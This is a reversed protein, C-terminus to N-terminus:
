ISTNSTLAPKSIAYVGDRKSLVEKVFKGIEWFAQRADPIVDAGAHFVHLAHDWLQFRLPVGAQICRAAVEYADALLVETSGVQILTPPLGSFDHNVPSWAPDLKGNVQMGWTVPLALVGASLAPDIKNNPHQLRATSDYNAFPAITVLAAPMPLSRERIALATSLVLGGGASDGALVVRDPSIGIELVRRYARVCDDVTQTIHVEPIQRYEINYVPLGTATSVRAVIRRHSNLGCSLLAGGHFYLVAGTATEPSDAVSPDWVWEARFDHFDIRQLRTGRPPRLVVLLRDARTTVWLALTKSLLRRHQLRVALDGLRRVSFGLVAHAVRLRRSARPPLEVPIVCPPTDGSSAM